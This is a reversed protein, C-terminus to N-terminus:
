PQDRLMDKLMPVTIRRQSQLAYGDLRNLVRMLSGLDREFRFLMYDMVEDALFLGRADAERRLVARREAENLPQLGYVPGWGLRTRLDERLPLDVPPANGSAILVAKSEADIFLRFAAHQRDADFRDCDDLLVAKWGPHFEWPLNTSPNFFGCSLGDNALAYAFARLLHTKGSGTPGWLMMPPWAASPASTSAAQNASTSSVSRLAATLAELAQGNQGDQGVVFSNFSPQAASLIDLPMQKM